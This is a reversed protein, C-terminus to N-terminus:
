SVDDYETLIKSVINQSYNNIILKELDQKLIIHIIEDKISKWFRIIYLFTKHGNIDFIFSNVKNSISCLFDKKFRDDKLITANFFLKLLIIGNAHTSLMSINEFIFSYIAFKTPEKFNKLIHYIVKISIKNLCLSSLNPKFLCSIQTQEKIHEALYVLKKIIPYNDSTYFVNQDHENLIEKWINVRSTDSIVVILQNIFERGNINNIIKSLNSIIHNIVQENQSNKLQIILEKYNNSYIQHIIFDEKHNNIPYVQQYSFYNLQNQYSYPLCIPYSYTNYIPQYTHNGVNNQMLPQFYSTYGMNYILPSYIYNNSPVKTSNTLLIQTNSINSYQPPEIKSIKKSEKIENTNSKNICSTDKLNFKSFTTIAKDLSEESSSDFLLMISNCEQKSISNEEEKCKINRSCSHEM